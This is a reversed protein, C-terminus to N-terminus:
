PNRAPGFTGRVRRGLSFIRRKPEQLRRAVGTARLWRRAGYAAGNVLTGIRDRHVFGEAVEEAGTSWSTKFHEPGKGFDVRRIGREAAARMLHYLLILGPSAREHVTNYAPFWLHLTGHSRLGLHAAVLDDGAYLASLLGGFGPEDVALCATVARHAWAEDLPDLTHTRQRQTKKWALLQELVGRDMSSVEFRLSGADRELRRAHHPIQSVWRAGRSRHLALYADFGSSLDATPSGQREWGHRAAAAQRALLHDFRWVRAGVSRLLSEPVVALDPAGIWGQFDCLRMGPARLVAGSRHFPFFGRDGDDDALVAVEVQHSAGELINLWEPAFFPRDLEPHASQLGRWRELDEDTLESPRLIRSVRIATASDM